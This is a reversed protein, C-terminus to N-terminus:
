VKYKFLETGYEVLHGNSACVETIIGDEEMVIENILKMAEIICIVSGKKVKDGVKVYPEENESPSTYFVGVFTSKISKYEDKQVPAAAEPEKEEDHVLVTQPATVAAPINRELRISFDNNKVEMGTLGLEKMLMAYSRIDDKNM